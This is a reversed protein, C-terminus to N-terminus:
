PNRSSTVTRSQGMTPDSGLIQVLLPSGNESEIELYIGTVLDQIPRSDVWKIVDGVDQTGTIRWEESAFGGLFGDALDNVLQHWFIVRFALGQQAPLLKSETVSEIELKIEM